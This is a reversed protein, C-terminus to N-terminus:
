HRGAVSEKSMPLWPAPSGDGDKRLVIAAERVGACSRLAAEIEAPEIRHGRLKIQQDRRGVFELLGDARRRGMDGTRFTRFGPRDPTPAFSAESFGPAGWYGLAFYRSSVVFEGVEGDGVPVGNEDLIEVSVDTMPRGVPLRAGRPELRDDVVWEAYHSSCETSGLSVILAARPCRRRLLDVDSWDVRDGGLRAVRVTDLREQDALAAMVERFLAPVSGYVSIERARIERVLGAPQLQRPSFVHLAAGNLLAGLTQKLGGVVSPSYLLVVKDDHALFTRNTLLLIDHLCNRHSNYVGKPAGTSGSTYLIQAVDDASRPAVPPPTGHASALRDFDLVPTHQPFLAEARKATEGVSLVAAAGAGEAIVRNREIPHSRDLPVHIRGAALVSLIAAPFRADHPMLIAVPGDRDILERALNAAVKGVLEALEAYTLTRELDSLAVRDAYRAAIDEFRDSISGRLASRPFAEFATSAVLM